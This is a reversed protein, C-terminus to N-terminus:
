RLPPLLPQAPCLCCEGCEPFLFPVHLTSTLGPSSACGGPCPGMPEMNLTVDVVVSLVGSRGTLQFLSLNTKGVKHLIDPSGLPTVLSVLSHAVGWRLASFGWARQASCIKLSVKDESKGVELSSNVYHIMADVLGHCERMKQRTQQSASSLNRCPFFPGDHCSTADRGSM